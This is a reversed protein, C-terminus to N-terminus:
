KTVGIIRPISNDVLETQEVPFTLDQDRPGQIDWDAIDWDFYSNSFEEDEDDEDDGDEDDSEEGDQFVESSDGEDPAFVDVSSWEIPGENNRAQGNLETFRRISDTYDPIQDYELGRGYDLM